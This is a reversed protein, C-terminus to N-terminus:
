ERLAPANLFRAPECLGGAFASSDPACLHEALGHACALAWGM